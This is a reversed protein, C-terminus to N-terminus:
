GGSLGPQWFHQMVGIIIYDADIFDARWVCSKRGALSSCDTQPFLSVLVRFGTALSPDCNGLQSLLLRWNQKDTVHDVNLRTWLYVSQLGAGSGQFVKLGLSVVAAFRRLVGVHFHTDLGSAESTRTSEAGSGKRAPSARTQPASLDSRGRDSCAPDGRARPATCM